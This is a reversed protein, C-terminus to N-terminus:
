SREAYFRHAGIIATVRVEKMWSVYEGKLSYHTAGKTLDTLHGAYLKDVIKLANKWEPDRSAKRVHDAYGRQGTRGTTAENLASFAYPRKVVGYFRAPNGKARNEIVNAVATMGFPGESAAELILCAAVVQREWSDPQYSGAKAGATLSCAGFLFSM